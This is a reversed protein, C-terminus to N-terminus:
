VFLYLKLILNETSKESSILQYWVFKVNKEYLNWMKKELQYYYQAWVLKLTRHKNFMACSKCIKEMQLRFPARIHRDSKPIHWARVYQNNLINVDFIKQWWTTILQFASFTGYAQYSPCVRSNVLFQIDDDLNCAINLPRSTKNQKTVLARTKHSIISIKHM